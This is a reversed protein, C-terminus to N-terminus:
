RLANFSALATGNDLAGNNENSYKNVHCVCGVSTNKTKPIRHEATPHISTHAKRLNYGNQASM